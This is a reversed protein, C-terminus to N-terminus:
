FPSGMKKSIYLLLELFQMIKTANSTPELFPNVFFDKADYVFKENYTKILFKIQTSKKNFEPKKPM